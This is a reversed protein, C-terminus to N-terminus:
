VDRGWRPIWRGVSRSYSTYAEGFKRRLVPEEYYRILLEVIIFFVLVFKLLIMSSFLAVEGCLILFVAVYMPNRVLKYPGQVVLNKPPDIPAPTGLGFAWFSWVCWGYLGVGLIIPVIGLYSFSNRVSVIQVMMYPVVAVIVGPVIITFLVIKTIPWM